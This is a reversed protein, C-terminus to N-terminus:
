LRRRMSVWAVTHPERPSQYEPQTLSPGVIVYAFFTENEFVHLMKFNNPLVCMCVSASCVPDLKVIVGGKKFGEM